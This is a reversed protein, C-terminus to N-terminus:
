IGNNHGKPCVKIKGEQIFDSQKGKQMDRNFIM